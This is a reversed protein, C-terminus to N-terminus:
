HGAGATWYTGVPLTKAPGTLDTGGAQALVDFLVAADAEEAVVPRRPIGEGYRQRLIALRQPDKTGIREALRTWESAEGALLLRATQSVDFFRRLLEGNRAAYTEDFAYGVMAIPAQAGLAREVDAMDIFRRFGQAELDASLNWYNLVADLEGQEAKAALLQPAGYLVQASKALDMGQRRAHAQLLLWSKDLPGGAIGLKRGVLDTLAHIPSNAKVMVAGIASTYPHFTLSGGLGRERAVWMLDAVILDASGGKLAIKGAEPSALEVIDLQLGAAKDLGAHRIVELEWGFTGTRQAVIRLRDQASAPALMALLGLLTAWVPAIRRM